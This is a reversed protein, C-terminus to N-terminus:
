KSLRLRYVPTELKEFGHKEAFSNTEESSGMFYIERAGKTYATFAVCTVMQKMALALEGNQCSPNPALSEIAVVAHIPLYALVEGDKVAKMWELSPYTFIDPDLGNKSINANLWEGLQKLDEKEVPKVIVDKM